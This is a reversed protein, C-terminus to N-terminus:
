FRRHEFLSDCEATWTQHMDQLPLRGETM